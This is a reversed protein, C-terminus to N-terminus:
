ASVPAFYYLMGTREGGSRRESSVTPAVTFGAVQLFDRKLYTGATIARADRIRRTTMVEVFQAGPFLRPAYRRAVKALASGIGFGKLEPVVAVRNIMTLGLETVIEGRTLEELDVDLEHVEVLHNRGVPAAYACGGGLVLAGAFPWKGDPRRFKQPCLQSTPDLYCAIVKGRPNGERYHQEGIFDLVAGSANRPIVRFGAGDLIDLHDFM